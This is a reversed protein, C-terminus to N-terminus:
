KQISLLDLPLGDFKSNTIILYSRSPNIRIRYSPNRDVIFWYDSKKRCPKGFVKHIRAFLAYVHNESPPYIFEAAAFLILVLLEWQAYGFPFSPSFVKKKGKETRIICNNTTLDFFAERSNPDLKNKEDKTLWRLHLQGEVFDFAFYPCGDSNPPITIKV